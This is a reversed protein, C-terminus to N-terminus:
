RPCTGRADIEADLQALLGQEPDPHIIDAKPWAKRADETPDQGDIGSNPNVLVLM